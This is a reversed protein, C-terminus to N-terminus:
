WKTTLAVAITRGIPNAQEPDYGVTKDYYHTVTFPPDRDFVNIASLSIEAGKLPTADSFRYAIRADVTTWSNVRTTPIVTQNAYGATHNVFGGIEFGGRSWSAQGRLRLKGPNGFTGVVNVKPATATLRQDIAFLRTGAIGLTADGGAVKTQYTLDVDLGRVTSTSLNTTLANAIVDIQDPTVGLPNSFHPDNFYALVAAPDPNETLIGGYIDRRTLYSLYDATRALDM